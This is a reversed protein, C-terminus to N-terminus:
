SLCFYPKVANVMVANLMVSVLTFSYQFCSLNIDGSRPKRASGRVKKVIM